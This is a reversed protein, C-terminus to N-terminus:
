PPRFLKPRYGAVRFIVDEARVLQMRVKEPSMKALNPHDWSHNAVVHGERVMRKVVDPHAAVRNGVVFFTAKVGHERLVDLIRPTFTLDPGDDFSLAVQRKRSPGNLVFDDPYKRRM